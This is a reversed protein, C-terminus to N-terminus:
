SSDKRCYSGSWRCKSTRALGSEAPRKPLFITATPISGRRGAGSIARPTLNYAAALIVRLTYNRAVFPHATQMRM